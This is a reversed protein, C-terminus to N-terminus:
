DVDELVDSLDVDDAFDTSGTTTSPVVGLLEMIEANTLQRGLALKVKEQARREKERLAKFWSEKKKWHASPLPLFQMRQYREETCKIQLDVQQDAFEESMLIWKKHLESLEAYRNESISWIKVRGKCKTPETLEGEDDTAYHFIVMGFRQDPEGMAERCKELLEQDEPARFSTRSANHFYRFARLLTPSIIAIRDTRGKVGKYREFASVEVKPDNLTVERERLDM